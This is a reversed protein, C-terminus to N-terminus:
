GARSWFGSSCQVDAVARVHRAFRFSTSVDEQSGTQLDVAANFLQQFVPFVGDDKLIGQLCAFFRLLLKFTRWDGVDVAEQTATAARKLVTDLVEMNIDNMYLVTAAVFPIKLPQEVCMQVVLDVVGGQVEPEDFHEVFGKALERSEAQPNRMGQKYNATLWTNWSITGPLVHEIYLQFV